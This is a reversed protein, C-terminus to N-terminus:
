SGSAALDPLATRLAASCEVLAERARDLFAFMHVFGHGVGAYRAVVVPV